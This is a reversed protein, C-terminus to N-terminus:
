NDNNRWEQMLSLTQAFPLVSQLSLESMDEPFTHPFSELFDDYIVKLSTTKDIKKGQVRRKLEDRGIEAVVETTNGAHSHVNNVEKYEYQPLGNEDTQESEILKVFAKCNTLIHNSCVFIVNNEFTTNCSKIFIYKYNVYLRLKESNQMFKLDEDPIRFDKIETNSVYTSPIIEEFLLENLSKNNTENNDENKDDLLEFGNM